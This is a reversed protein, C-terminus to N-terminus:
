MAFSSCSASAAGRLVMGILMSGTRTVRIARLMAQTTATIDAEFENYVGKGVTAARLMRNTLSPTAAIGVV